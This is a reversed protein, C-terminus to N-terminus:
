VLRSPLRRAPRPLSFLVAVVLLLTSFTGLIGLVLRFGRLVPLTALHGQIGILTMVYGAAVAVLWPVAEFRARAILNNVLTYASTLPLMCWAFWPVLPAAKVFLEPRGTASVLPSIFFTYLSLFPDKGLMAFIVAATALTLALALLPSGYAWAPSRRGRPELRILM